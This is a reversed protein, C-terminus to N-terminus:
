AAPAVVVAVYSSEGCGTARSLARIEPFDREHSHHGFLAKVPELEAVTLNPVHGLADLAATACHVDEDGTLAVISARISM